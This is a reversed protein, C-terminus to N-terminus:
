CFCNRNRSRQQCLLFRRLRSRVQGQQNDPAGGITTQSCVSKTNARGALGSPTAQAPWRLCGVKVGALEVEFSGRSVSFLCAAVLVVLVAARSSQQMRSFEEAAM